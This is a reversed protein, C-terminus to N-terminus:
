RVGPALSHPQDSGSVDLKTNACPVAQAARGVGTIDFDYFLVPGGKPFVQLRFRRASEFERGSDILFINNLFTGVRTSLPRVPGDDIRYSVNIAGRTFRSSLVVSIFRGGVLNDNLCQMLLRAEIGSSPEKARVSASREVRDTMRDKTGSVAWDASAPVIAPVCFVVVATMKLLQTM